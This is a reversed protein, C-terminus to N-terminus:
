HLTQELWKGMKEINNKEKNNFVGLQKKKKVTPVLSTVSFEILIKRLEHTGM